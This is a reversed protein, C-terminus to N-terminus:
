QVELKKDMEFDSYVGDFLSLSEKMRELDEEYAIFYSDSGKSKTNELICGIVKQFNEDSSPWFKKLDSLSDFIFLRFDHGELKSCLMESFDGPDTYVPMFSCDEKDEIGMFLSKSIGDVFFINSSDLGKEAMRKKIFDYTLSISVLCIKEKRGKIFEIVNDLCEERKQSILNILNNVM